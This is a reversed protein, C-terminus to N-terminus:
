ATAGELPPSMGAERAAAWFLVSDVDLDDEGAIRKAAECLDDQAELLRKCAQAVESSQKRLGELDGWTVDIQQILECLRILEPPRKLVLKETKKM